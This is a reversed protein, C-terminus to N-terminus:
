RRQKKEPRPPAEVQGVNVIECDDFSMLMLSSNGIIRSLKGRLTVRTKMPTFTLLQDKYRAGDFYCQVQRSGEGPFETKFEDVAVQIQGMHFPKVRVVRGTFEAGSYKPGCLEAARLESGATRVCSVIEDYQTTFVTDSAASPTHVCGTLLGLSLLTLGRYSIRM